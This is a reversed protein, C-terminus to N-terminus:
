TSILSTPYYTWTYTFLSGVYECAASSAGALLRDLHIISTHVVNVHMHMVISNDVMRATRMAALLGMSDALSLRWGCVGGRAELAGHELTAVTADKGCSETAWMQRGGCVDLVLVGAGNLYPALTV